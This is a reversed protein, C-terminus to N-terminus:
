PYRGNDRVANFLPRDLQHCWPRNSETSYSIRKLRGWSAVELHVAATRASRVVDLAPALDSDHSCVVAVDFGGQYAVQVLHVALAVDVGKEQPPEAPWLQPYRLPRQFILLREPSPCRQRWAAAQAQNAANPIPEKRADPLGRYVRVQHLTSPPNDPNLNRRTVIAESLAWPDFHGNREDFAVRACRHMNEYDIFVTVRKSSM